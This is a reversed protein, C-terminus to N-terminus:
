RHVFGHFIIFASCLMITKPDTHLSRSKKKNEFTYTYYIVGSSIQIVLCIYLVKVILTRLPIYHM